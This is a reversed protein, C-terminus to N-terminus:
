EECIKMWYKAFISFDIANIKTDRNVDIGECWDPSLCDITLWYTFFISMDILNNHNDGNFDGIM